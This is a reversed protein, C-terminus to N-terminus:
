SLSSVGLGGWFVELEDMAPEEGIVGGSMSGRDRCGAHPVGFDGRRLEFEETVTMFGGFRLFDSVDESNVERRREVWNVGRGVVAEDPELL